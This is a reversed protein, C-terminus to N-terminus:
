PPVPRPVEAVMLAAPLAAHLWFARNGKKPIDAIKTYNLVLNLLFFWATSNAKAFQEQSRMFVIRARAGLLALSFKICLCAKQKHPDAHQLRTASGIRPCIKGLLNGHM